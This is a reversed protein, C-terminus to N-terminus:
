TLPAEKHLHCTTTKEMVHTYKDMMGLQVINFLLDKNKTLPLKELGLMCNYGCNLLTFAIREKISAFFAEYSLGETYFLHYLPNFHNKEMDKKLDDVADILYIWKGLAYGFSFLPEKTSEQKLSPYNKFMIGVLQAFPDCIEDLSHFDKTAELTYLNKLEIDMLTLIPSLTLPFKKHYPKLFKTLLKSKLSHDDLADDLLKYYVLAVNMSAAYVLADNNSVMSRKKFPHTMCTHKSLSCSSPSLSDLVLALFTMDYNLAMRPLNGYGKKIHMCLGCYYSKFLEFERIKLEEKLPVVYGFM